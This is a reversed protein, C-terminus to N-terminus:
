FLISSLNLQWGGSRNIGPKRDRIEVAERAKMQIINEEFALVRATFIPTKSQSLDIDGHHCLVHEGWPTNKKNKKKKTDAYHEQFERGSRDSRKELM